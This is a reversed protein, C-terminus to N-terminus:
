VGGHHCSHLLRAHGTLHFFVDETAKEFETHLDFLATHSEMSHIVFLLQNVLCAGVGIQLEAEAASFNAILVIPSFADFDVIGIRSRFLLVVILQICLATLHKEVSCAVDTSYDNMKSTFLVMVTKQSYISPIM